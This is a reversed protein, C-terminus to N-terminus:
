SRRCVNLCTFYLLCLLVSIARKQTYSTGLFLVNESVSLLITCARPPPTPPPCHYLVRKGLCSICSICTRGSDLLDGPTPFLLGSQYGQRSFGMSLPAQCTVLWPIARSLWCVCVCVCACGIVHSLWRVCVRAGACVCVCVCVCVCM